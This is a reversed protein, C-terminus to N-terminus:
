ESIMCGRCAAVFVREAEEFKEFVLSYASLGVCWIMEVFWCDVVIGALVSAAAALGSVKFVLSWQTAGPEWRLLSITHRRLGKVSSSRTSIRRLIVVGLRRVACLARRRHRFLAPLIQLLRLCLSHTSPLCTSRHLSMRPAPLPRCCNFLCSYFYQRVLFILHMLRSTSIIPRTLASCHELRPTLARHSGVRHSNANAPQADESSTSPGNSNRSQSAM